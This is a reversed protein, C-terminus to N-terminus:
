QTQIQSISVRTSLSYYSRPVMRLWESFLWWLQLGPWSQQVKNKLKIHYKKYTDITFNLEENIM